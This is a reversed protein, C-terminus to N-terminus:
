AALPRLCAVARGAALPALSPPAPGRCPTAARDCRPAFACGPPLRGPAPVMGPLPRLPQAVPDLSPISRLLGAAYPHAPDRLLLPTDAVEVVRGAYMVAVQAALRAVVGLDHTVLLLALGEEAGLRELLDLLQAQTTVDLATTPEDAVLLLPRGALAAAIAVRQAMGGSLQHPYDRLRLAPAAIGVRSLLSAAEERAAAGRLGRHRALIRRLTTGITLVPNLSALPDQFIAAIRAGRVGDLVASPADVLETGELRVSGTAALGPPLLGLVALCTLSKGCGSEGVLALTGGRPVGFSVGQVLALGSRTRVTLDAVALLTADPAASPIL